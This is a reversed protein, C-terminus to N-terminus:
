PEIVHCGDEQGVAQTGAPVSAGQEVVVRSLQSGAGVSAEALVACDTLTCGDAVQARPGVSTNPGIVAAGIAAGAGALVPAVIEAHAASHAGPDILMGDPPAAGALMLPELRLIDRPRAVDSWYGELEMAGVAREGGVMTAVAQTLEYEGRESVPTARIMEFILPTFGFIGSNNYNTTSPGPPPKEIIKEVRGDEVYVAAGEYPDDVYNLTVVTDWNGSCIEAALRPYNAPHTMIDGFSVLFPEDEMFEECLLTAAGNGNAVEQVVYRIKLGLESGDGLHEIVQERFPGVVIVWDDVGAPAGGTLIHEIMPRGLLPVLPKARRDTLPAMRTGKGAALIIGQM